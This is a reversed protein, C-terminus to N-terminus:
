RYFIEMVISHPLTIASILMLFLFALSISLFGTLTLGFLIMCGAISLLTFPALMQIFKLISFSRMNVSLFRYEDFMVKLSHLLVFYLTFGIIIPLTFFAFHILGLLISEILAREIDIKSRIFLYWIIALSLFSTAITMYKLVISASVSISINFEDILKDLLIIDDLNYYILGLIISLGWLMFLVKGILDSSIFSFQSQGFHYASIILFLILSLLPFIFWLAINICILGLYFSYFRSNKLKYEKRLLIHDIAGHPIGILLIFLASFKLQNTIDLDLFAICTSLLILFVSIFIFQLKNM